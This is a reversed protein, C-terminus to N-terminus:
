LDFSRRTPFSHGIEAWAVKGDRNETRIGMHECLTLVYELAKAPGTGYPHTEDVDTMAVSEIAMLGTLVKLFETRDM